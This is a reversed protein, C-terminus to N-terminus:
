CLAPAIKGPRSSCLTPDAPRPTPAPPRVRGEPGSSDSAADSRGQVAPGASGVPRSAGGVLRAPTAHQRLLLVSCTLSKNNHEPIHGDREPGYNCTDIVTKGAPPTAPLHPSASVPVTVVVIDGAAAAEESTATSARPGLEAATDVLTEPDRSNSIVVQHGVGVALQALTRGISGSGIFGVTTM